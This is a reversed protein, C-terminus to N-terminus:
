APAGRGAHGKSPMGDSGFYKIGRPSAENMRQNM